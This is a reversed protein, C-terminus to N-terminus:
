AVGEKRAPGAALRALRSLGPPNAIATQYAVGIEELAQRWLAPDRGEPIVVQTVGCRVLFLYQDPLTHGTARIPGKYGLHERLERASTFSRGDRFKPFDLSILSIRDLSGALAAPRQDNRLAVGLPGGYALWAEREALFRDLPIIVPVPPLGAAEPVPAPATDDLSQWPDAILAGNEILPM